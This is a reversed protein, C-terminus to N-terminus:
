DKTFIGGNVYPPRWNGDASVVHNHSGGGFNDSVDVGFDSWAGALLADAMMQIRTATGGGTQFAPLSLQTGSYSPSPVQGTTLTTNGTSLGTIPWSGSTGGIQGTDNVIRVMRDNLTSDFTWGSVSANFFIAKAGSPVSEAGDAGDAGAPGTPGVLGSISVVWSALTGSGGTSTVNVTMAGTSPTYATVEGAMWNTAPAASDAIIVTQGVAFGKGTDALTLAKSGTGVALSTTSTSKLQNAVHAVIDALCAPFGTEEDAYANGEFNAATYTVGNVIVEFSM